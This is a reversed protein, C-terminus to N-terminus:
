AVVKRKAKEFYGLQSALYRLNHNFMESLEDLTYHAALTHIYIDRWIRRIKKSDNRKNEKVYDTIQYKLKHIDKNEVTWLGLGIEKVLKKTKYTDKKMKIEDFHIGGNVEIIISHGPLFFDVCHNGIWFSTYFDGKFYKSITRSLIDEQTTRSHIFTTNTKFRKSYQWYHLKLAELTINIEGGTLTRLQNYKSAKSETSKYLDTILEIAITENEESRYLNSLENGLYHKLNRNAEFM